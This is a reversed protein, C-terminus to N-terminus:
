KADGKRNKDERKSLKNFTREYELLLLAYLRRYVPYSLEEISFMDRLNRALMDYRFKLANRGPATRMERIIYDKLITQNFTCRQFRAGNKGM